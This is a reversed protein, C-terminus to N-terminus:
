EDDIYKLLPPLKIEQEGPFAQYNMISKKHGEKEVSITYEGPEITVKFVGNFTEEVM